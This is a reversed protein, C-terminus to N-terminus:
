KKLGQRIKRERELEKWIQPVDVPGAECRTHPLTVRCSLDTTKNKNGQGETLPVSPAREEKGEKKGFIPQSWEKNKSSKQPTKKKKKSSCRCTKKELGKFV